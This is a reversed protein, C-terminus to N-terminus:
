DTKDSIDLLAAGVFTLLLSMSIYEFFEPYTLIVYVPDSEIDRLIMSLMCLLSVLIIPLCIFLATLAYKSLGEVCQAFKLAPAKKNQKRKM